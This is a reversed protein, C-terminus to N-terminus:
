FCSHGSSRKVHANGQVDGGSRVVSPVRLYFVFLACGRLPGHVRKCKVFSISVKKIRETLVCYRIGIYKKCKWQKSGFKKEGVM